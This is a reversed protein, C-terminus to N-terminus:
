FIATILLFVHCITLSPIQFFHTNALTRSTNHTGTVVVGPRRRLPLGGTLTQDPTGLGGSYALKRSVAAKKDTGGCELPQWTGKM